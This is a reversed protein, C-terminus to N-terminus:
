IDRIKRVTFIPCIELQQPHNTYSFKRKARQLAETSVYKIAQDEENCDYRFKIGALCVKEIIADPVSMTHERYNEPVFGAEQVTSVIEDLTFKASYNLRERPQIGASGRLAEFNIM